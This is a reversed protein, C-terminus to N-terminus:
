NSDYEYWEEIGKSDFYHIQNGYLDYEHWVEAGDAWKIHILNGNVDYDQWYESGNNWKEHTINNNYDYELWYETFSSRNTWKKHIINGNTDYNTITNLKVWRFVKEGDVTVEKYINKYFDQAFVSFGFFVFCLVLYTFKTLTNRIHM